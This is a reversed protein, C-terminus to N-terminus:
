RPKKIQAVLLLAMVIFIGGFSILSGWWFSAPEYTLEVMHQGASVVVGQLVTNVRKLEAPHGDIKAQWGPCFIQSLVLLHAGFADVNAKVYTPTLEAITITSAGVGSLEEILPHAVIASQRLDFRDSGLRAIAQDDESIVEVTSVFWARPFPDGMEVINLEDQAVVLSLGEGSIDRADVIYRVNMLQWLRWAPMHQNFNDVRALQLPTNGTLDQLNYVSAASNGGPLLGGSVMRGQALDQGASSLNARLYDVVGGSPFLAVEQQELNFRWNVTFLNFGLWLALLAIGWRRWFRRRRRLTLLVFTGGLFLLGFLHHRLVGVFLNVDDGRITSMASGFVYVATLAFFVV